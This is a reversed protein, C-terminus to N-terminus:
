SKLLPVFGAQEFHHDTTLATTINRRQMLAFSVADVLSWTKDPRAKLLDWGATDLTQDVYVVHVYPTTKLTDIYHFLVPRPVRLPRHFLAILEALVYNTTILTADERELQDFIRLAQPHYPETKVFLNAWGATDIFVESV